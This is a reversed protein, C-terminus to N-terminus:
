DKPNRASSHATVHTHATNRIHAAHTNANSNPNCIYSFTVMCIHRDCHFYVQGNIFGFKRWFCDTQSRRVRVINRTLDRAVGDIWKLNLRVDLLM